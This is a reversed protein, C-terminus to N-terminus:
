VHFEYTSGGVHVGDDAPLWYGAGAVVASGGPVEGARFYGVQGGMVQMQELKHSAPQPLAQRLLPSLARAAAQVVRPAEAIPRGNGDIAVWGGACRGLSAVQRAQLRIREHAFLGRLLQPVRVLRGQGMWVGGTPL